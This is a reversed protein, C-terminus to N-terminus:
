GNINAICSMVFTRCNRMAKSRVLHRKKEQVFSSVTYSAESFGENYVGSMTDYLTVHDVFIQLVEAIEIKYIACAVKFEQPIIVEQRNIRKM